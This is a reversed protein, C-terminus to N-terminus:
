EGTYNNFSCVYERLNTSTLQKHELEKYVLIMNIQYINKIVEEWNLLGKRFDALSYDNAVNLVFEKLQSDLNPNDFAFKIYQRSKFLYFVALSINNSRFWAELINNISHDHSINTLQNLLIILAEDDFG